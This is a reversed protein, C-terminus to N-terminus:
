KEALSAMPVQEKAFKVATTGYSGWLNGLVRAPGMWHGQSQHVGPGARWYDVTEDLVYDGRKPRSRGILSTRIKTNAEVEIM